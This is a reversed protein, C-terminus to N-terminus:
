YTEKTSESKKTSEQNRCHYVLSMLQNLFTLHKERDTNNALESQNLDVSFLDERCLKRETKIRFADITSLNPSNTAQLLNSTKM